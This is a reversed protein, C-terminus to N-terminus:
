MEKKRAREEYGERGGRMREREEYRQRGGRESERRM